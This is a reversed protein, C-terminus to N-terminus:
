QVTSEAPGTIQQSDLSKSLANYEDVGQQYARIRTNITDVLQNQQPVLSNYAAISGSSKLGEMRRNLASLQTKLARIGALDSDLARRRDEFVKQYTMQAEVVVNRDAFYTAYHGELATGLGAYETGLISHLENDRQGPESIAYDAMRQKLDADTLKEYAAELDADVIAKQGRNLRDYGAHLLEHALVVDMEPALSANEIKLIYIRGNVYCGLELEGKSTKCDANFAAKSDIQPKTRYLIGKAESTLGLRDIISAVEPKPAFTAIAYQDLIFQYKYAGTLVLALFVLQGILKSNFRNHEM